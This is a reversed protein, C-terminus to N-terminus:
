KGVARFLTQGRGGDVPAGTGTGDAKWDIRLAEFVKLCDADTAASMCGQAGGQNRTIDTGALLAQIDVAVKQTTADFADLQVAGRNPHLCSVTGLGPNGTCGTSGLHVFFTDSPWAGRTPETVEIKAFKRGAQWSWGLAVLDLPSPAQSTDSHNLSFPVGLTMRLGTYRGAPVTGRLLANTDATGEAACDASGNELDILSVTDGNPATHHWPSDTPLALPVATGDARLLAVNSLYFRLDMLRASVAGSGLGPIPDGGCRVPLNGAVGAFEISVPRDANVAAAIDGRTAAVAVAADLSSGKDDLKLRLAEFLRSNADGAALAGDLIDTGPAGLGLAALQAAVYTKATTLTGESPADAGGAFAAFAAFAEAPAKAFAHALALESLPSVQAPGARMAIGHLTRTNTATGVTGGKVQVLCPPTGGSLKVSFAGQADTLRGAEPTGAVCKLTVTAGAVPAGLSAAGTVAAKAREEAEKARRAAEEAEERAKRAAEEAARAAAGAAARAAADAGARAAEEAAARAAAARAEAEAAARKAAEAEAKAAAAAAARAAAEAAAQAAAADSAAKTGALAARLDGRASASTVLTDLTAAHATTTAALTDLLKDNADGVRFAGSFLDGTPRALGLAAVQDGVYAQAAAFANSSPVAHAADFSAFAGAPSAAFAHALAIETLPNIQARGAASAIGHLKVGSAVGAVTGGTAELMCPLLAGNLAISYAGAADTVGEAAGASCRMAVRAGVVAQGVAVTGSLAAASPAPGPLPSTDTPDAGVITISDNGGGCSALLVALSLGISRRM